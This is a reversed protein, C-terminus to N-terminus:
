QSSRERRRASVTAQNAARRKVYKEVDMRAPGLIKVAALLESQTCGFIRCWYRIQEPDAINITNVDAPRRRRRAASKIM